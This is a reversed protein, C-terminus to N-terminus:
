GGAAAPGMGEYLCGDEHGFIKHPKCSCVAPGGGPAAPRGGPAAPLVTIPGNAAARFADRLRELEAEHPGGGAAAPGGGYQAPHAQFIDM